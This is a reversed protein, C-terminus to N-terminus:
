RENLETKLEEKISALDKQLSDANATVKNELETVISERLVAM